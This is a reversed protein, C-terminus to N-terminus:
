MKKLASKLSQIMTSKGSKEPGEIALIFNRSDIKFGQNMVSTQSHVEDDTDVLDSDEQLEIMAEITSRECSLLFRLATNVEKSRCKSLEAIDDSNYDPDRSVSSDTLPASSNTELIINTLRYIPIPKSFGKAKM